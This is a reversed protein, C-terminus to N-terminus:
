ERNATSFAQTHVAFPWYQKKLGHLTNPPFFAKQACLLGKQIDVLFPEHMSLLFVIDSWIMYYIDVLFFPTCVFLKHNWRQCCAKRCNNQYQEDIIKPRSQLSVNLITWLDLTWTTQIWLSYQSIPLCLWPLVLAHWWSMFPKRTEGVERAHLNNQLISLTNRTKSWAQEFPHTNWADVFM